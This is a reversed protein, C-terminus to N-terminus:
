RFGLCMMNSMLTRFYFRYIILQDLISVVVCDVSVFEGRFMSFKMINILLSAEKIQARIEIIILGAKHKLKQRTWYCATMLSCDYRIYVRFDELRCDDAWVSILFRNLIIDTIKSFFNGQMSITSVLLQSDGQKKTIQIIKHRLSWGTNYSIDLYLMLALASLVMIVQSVLQIALTWIPLLSKTKVFTTEYILSAQHHLENCQSLKRTNLKRCHVCDCEPCRFGDTWRWKFLIVVCQGKTGFECFLDILSGSHFQFKNQQSGLGGSQEIIETYEM